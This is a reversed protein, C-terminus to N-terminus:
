FKYGVGLLLLQKFQVRPGINGNKDTIMVDDDYLLQTSIDVNLWNNVKMGLLVQWDVDINQPNHFYDSYLSLRSNIKVNKAIPYDLVILINMGLGLTYKKAHTIIQGTSDKVAPKLGFSGNDAIRQSNVYILRPSVPSLYTTLHKSFIYQMSPGLELTMPSLFGSIVTSSDVKYDYGNAFQTKFSSLVTFLWKKNLQSKYISTWEIQDATKLWKSGELVSYGLAMKVHNTWINKNKKYNADMVFKGVAGYANAGGAAWNSFYNENFNISASGSTKWYRTTDNQAHVSIISFLFLALTLYTKM